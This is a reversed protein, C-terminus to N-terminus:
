ASVQSASVVVVVFVVLHFLVACSIGVVRFVERRTLLPDSSM